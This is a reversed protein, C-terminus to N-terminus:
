EKMKNLLEITRDLQDNRSEGKEISLVSIDWQPYLQRYRALVAQMVDQIEEQSVQNIQAIIEM